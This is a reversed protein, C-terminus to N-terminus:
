RTSITSVALLYPNGGPDSYQGVASCKPSDNACSVGYIVNQQTTSSDPSAVISWTAGTSREILTQNPEGSYGAATCTRPSTTCSVTYLQSLSGSANPSNVISWSAGTSQEILTQRVNGEGEWGVATCATPGRTCSVQNLINDPQGSINRDRICM